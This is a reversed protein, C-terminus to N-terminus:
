ISAQEAIVWKKLKYAMLSLLVSVFVAAFIGWTLTINFKAVQETSFDLVPTKTEELYMSILHALSICNSLYSIPNSTLHYKKNVYLNEVIILGVIGSVAFAVKLDTQVFGKIKTFVPDEQFNLSKERDLFYTFKVTFAILFFPLM